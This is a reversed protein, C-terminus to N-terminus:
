GAAPEPTGALDLRGLAHLRLLDLAVTTARDQILTRDGGLDRRYARAERADAVSFYVLGVPKAPSGGGPGAIGTTAVAVSAGCARLVGRAMAIAVPASVAGHAALLEPAVGLLAAKAADAYAVIAGLFVESSGPVRTLAEGVAGGTLSEAVALTRGDRRLLELLAAALGEEGEAYLRPGLRSRVRALTADLAALGPADAAASLHLDVRGEAPLYAIRVGAALLPEIEEALVHESVGATRLRRASIREGAPLQALALRPLVEARLMAEMERPVGPLAFIEGREGRVRFGPAMGIRNVLPEAGAPLDALREAVPDLTRGRAAFWARLSELAAAHRVRPRGLARAVAERTVDDPTAGLGGTVILRAGRALAEAVAAAIAVPEDPLARQEAAPCGRAALLRAIVLANGDRVDGRLIEGGITIVEIRM